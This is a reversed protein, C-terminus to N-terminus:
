ARMREPQLEESGEVFEFHDDNGAMRDRFAELEHMRLGFRAGAVPNDLLASLQEDVHISFAACDEAKVSPPVAAVDRLVRDRVAQRIEDRYDSVLQDPEKSRRMLAFRETSRLYGETFVESLLAPDNFEYVSILGDIYDRHDVDMWSMPTVGARLLPINCSVRATRKNCDEFPQLYPLHVNLFLAQEFPNTIESAKQLVLRFSAAIQAPSDAPIYASDRIEVHSQRLAGCMRPDKLLEAALISHLARIDTERLAVASGEAIASASMNDIIYRVADHHNLIMVKDTRSGGEMEVAHDILRITSAYDYDNGELRSSSFSLDCLFVSVDHDGLREISASGIPCRAQLRALQSQSLYSTVNPEYAKLFAENYTVRRRTSVPRALAERSIEIRQRFSAVYRAGSTNGSREILGLEIARDIWRYVTNDSYPFERRARRAQMALADRIASRSMGPAAAALRAIREAMETPNSHSSM